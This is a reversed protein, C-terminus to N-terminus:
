AAEELGIKNTKESLNKLSVRVEEPRQFPYTDENLYQKTLQDILQNVGGTLVSSVQVEPFTFLQM